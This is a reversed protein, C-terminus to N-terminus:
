YIILKLRKTTKIIINNDNLSDIDNIIKLTDNLVSSNSSVNFNNVNFKVKKIKFKFVVLAENFESM